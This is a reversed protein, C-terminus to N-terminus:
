VEIVKLTFVEKFEPGWVSQIEGKPGKQIQHFLNLLNDLEKKDTKLVGYNANRWLKLNITM